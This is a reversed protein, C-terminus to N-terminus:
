EIKKPHGPINWVFEKLMFDVIENDDLIIRDKNLIDTLKLIEYCFENSMYLNKLISDKEPSKFINLWHVPTIDDPLGYSEILAITSKNKSSADIISNDHKIVNALHRIFRIDKSYILSDFKTDWIKLDTDQLKNLNNFFDEIIKSMGLIFLEISKKKMQMITGGLHKMEYKDEFKWHHMNNIADFTSDSMVALTEISFNLEQILYLSEINFKKM